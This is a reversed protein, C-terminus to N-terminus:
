GAINAPKPAPVSGVGVVATTGGMPLNISDLWTTATLNGFPPLPGTRPVMMLLRDGPVNRGGSVRTRGGTTVGLGCGGTEVGFCGLGSVSTTCTGSGGLGTFGTVGGLGSGGCTALTSGGLGTGTVGFDSGDLGCATSSGSGFGGLM